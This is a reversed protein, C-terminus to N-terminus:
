VGSKNFVNAWLVWLLVISIVLKVWRSSIWLILLGQQVWLNRLQSSSRQYLPTMELFVTWPLLCKDQKTLEVKRSSGDLHNLFHYSLACSLSPLCWKFLSQFDGRSRHIKLSIFDLSKIDRWGNAQRLIDTVPNSWSLWKRWGLLQDHYWRHDFMRGVDGVKWTRTSQLM